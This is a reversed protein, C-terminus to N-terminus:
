EVTTEAKNKEGKKYIPCNVSKRWDVPIGRREM